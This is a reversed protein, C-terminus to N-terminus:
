VVIPDVTDDTAGKYAAGDPLGDELHALIRAM